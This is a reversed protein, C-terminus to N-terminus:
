IYFRSFTYGLLDEPLMADADIVVRAHDGPPMGSDLLSMLEEGPIYDSATVLHFDM